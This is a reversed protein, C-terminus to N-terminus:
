DSDSDSDSLNDDNIKKNIIKDKKNVMKKNNIKKIKIEESDSDSNSSESLNDFCEFCYIDDEYIKIKDISKIKIKCNFCKKKRIEYIKEREYQDWNKSSM